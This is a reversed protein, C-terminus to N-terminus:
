LHLRGPPQITERNPVDGEVGGEGLDGAAPVDADPEEPRRGGRAPDREVEGFGTPGLVNEPVERPRTAKLVARRAVTELNIVGARSHGTKPSHGGGQAWHM